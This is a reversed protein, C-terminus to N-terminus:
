SVDLDQALTLTEVGYCTNRRDRGAVDGEWVEGLGCCQPPWHTGLLLDLPHHGQRGSSGRLHQLSHRGDLYQEIIAALVKNVEVHLIFLAKISDTQHKQRENGSTPHLKCPLTHSINCGM